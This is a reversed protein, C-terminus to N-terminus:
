VDPDVEDADAAFGGARDFEVVRGVVKFSVPDVPELNLRLTHSSADRASADPVIVRAKARRPAEALHSHAAHLAAVLRDKVDGKLADPEFVAARMARRHVDERQSGVAFWRHFGDVVLDLDDGAVHLERSGVGVDANVDDAGLAGATLSPQLVAPVVKLSISPVDEEDLHRIESVQGRDVDAVVVAAYTRRPM